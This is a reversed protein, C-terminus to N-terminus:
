RYLFYRRAADRWAVVTALERDIVSDPDDGAVLQERVRSSGLLEDFRPLRFRLSDPSTKAIAWLLAAGVRSPNVRDRDTVVVRVGPIAVGGFKDDSPHEPTFRDAEFKVGPMLRDSLLEVVDKARLWPAGVRQFPEGTGRGVSLNTAEFMVFGPYLLVSTLTPLNPSPRVWPLKTEDFWQARRWGKAPVVTLDAQVGLRDNLLLALEGMTMGHRLPVAYLAHAKGRQGPAPDNADALASDLMPGEFRTGTIPNPRDLVVVPIHLRAAARMSYLMAGVYTWTRTGSDQLDVVFADVGRLLSDAPPVTGNQYLSHVILGSRADTEGQVFPRNETGRVGHEPAFLVELRVRAKRARADDRLLEIDSTGHEDVGTNNTLLALRRNAVLGVREDLLVSIGPRVRENRGEGAGRPGQSACAVIAIVVAGALSPALGRRVVWWLPQRHGTGV